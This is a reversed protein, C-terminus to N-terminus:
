KFYRQDKIGSMDALSEDTRQYKGNQWRYVTEDFDFVLIDKYCIYTGGSDLEPIEELMGTFELAIPPEDSDGDTEVQNDETVSLTEAHNDEAAPVTEVQSQVYGEGSIPTEINETETYKTDAAKGSGCATLCVCLTCISLIYKLINQLREFM